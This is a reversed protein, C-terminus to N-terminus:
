QIKRKKKLLKMDILSRRLLLSAEQREKIDKSQKLINQANKIAKEIEKQDLEDQGYARTVLLNIEEGDTQLYGGGIALHDETNKKKIKIIGEKLLAFLNMHRPLITIEGEFSPATLWDVDDERIIRQPTIIRLHITSM